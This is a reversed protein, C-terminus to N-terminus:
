RQGFARKIDVVFKKEIGLKKIRADLTNPHMGLLDAAGGKGRIRGQCYQLTRFIHNRELEQLSEPIFATTAIPVALYAIHLTKLTNGESLLIARELTHELERVNGPWPYTTLEQIVQSSLTLPPKGVKKGIKQIFSQALLIVDQDRERLPPIDIPLVNLRFYLDQRFRGQRVEEALDRNTAAIIRVDVKRVQNGGLPEIEKEQLFRLLKTQSALPLEGIEDLFITSQHALELKGIRRQIAGTFAGKEHGFLESEILESPLAACNIKVMTQERRRSHNHVARAILEKGTGTEGQILVTADTPAIREILRFVRQMAESEAVIDDFNHYSIIEENLYENQIALRENKAKSLCLEVAVYIEREDFPKLVYGFPHTEKVRAITNEDAFSSVFVFPIQYQKNLMQAIDIGSMAGKLQIDLLVVDPKVQNLMLRAEEASLAIGIVEYHLNELITQLDHAIVFEDEVILVKKAM